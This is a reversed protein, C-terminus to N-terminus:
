IVGMTGPIAEDSAPLQSSLPMRMPSPHEATNTSSCEQNACSDTVPLTDSFGAAEGRFDLHYKPTQKLLLNTLYDHERSAM